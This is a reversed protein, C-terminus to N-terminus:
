RRAARWLPGRRDGDSRAAPQRLASRSGLRRPDASRGQDAHPVAARLPRRRPGTRSRRVPAARARLARHLRRPLSEAGARVVSGHSASAARGPSWCIAISPSGAAPPSSSSCRRTSGAHRATTSTRSRRRATACSPAHAAPEQLAQTSRNAAERDLLLALWEAHDLDRASDQAQLEVFADAM